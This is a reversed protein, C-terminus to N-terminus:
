LLKFYTMCASPPKAMLAPFLATTATITQYNSTHSGKCDTNIVVLTTLEFGALALNVRYLMTIFNTLSKRCTPPKIQTSRNGGRDLRSNKNQNDIHGITMCVLYFNLNLLSFLVLIFLLVFHFIFCLIYILSVNLCSLSCM